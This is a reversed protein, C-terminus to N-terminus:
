RRPRRGRRRRRARRAARGRIAARPARAAEGRRALADERPWPASVSAPAPSATTPTKPSRVRWSSSGSRATARPARAALPTRPARSRARGRTRRPAQRPSRCRTPRPTRRRRSARRAALGHVHRGRQGRGRGGAPDQEALRSAREGARRQPALRRRRNGDAPAAALTAAQRSSPIAGSPGTAAPRGTRRVRAPARTAGHRAAPRRPRRSRGGCSRRRVPRSRCTAARGRAAPRGRRRPRRRRGSGRRAGVRGRRLASASRMRATAPSSARPTSGPAARAVVVADVDIARRASPTSAPEGVLRRLRALDGPRHAADELGRRALAREDDHDLVRVPGIGGARSRRTCARSRPRRPSGAARGRGARAARAAGPRPPAAARSRAAGAPAARAPRPVHAARRARRRARRRRRGLADDGGGLAVRQEQLLQEGNARLAPRRRQRRADLRHEGGADVAELRVLALHEAVGRELAAAEVRPGDRLQERGRLAVREVPRQQPQHLLLEDPRARGSKAPSSANRKEWARIRSAAYAPMGFRSRPSCWSRSASSAEPGAARGRRARRIGDRAPRGAAAGLKARGVLVVPRERALRGVPEGRRRLRLQAAAVRAAAPAAARAPRPAPGPTVVRRAGASSTEGRRSARRRRGGRPRPHAGRRRRDRQGLVVAVRADAARARTSSSSSRWCAPRLGPPAAARRDGVGREGLELAMAVLEAAATRPPQAGPDSHAALRAAAASSAQRCAASSARRAPSSRSSNSIRPQRAEAATNPGVGTGSAISRQSRSGRRLGRRAGDRHGEHQM